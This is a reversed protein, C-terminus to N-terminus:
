HPLTIPSSDCYSKPYVEAEDDCAFIFLWLLNLVACAHSCSPAILIQRVNPDGHPKV